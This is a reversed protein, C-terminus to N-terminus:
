PSMALKINKLLRKSLEGPEFAVATVQNDLDPEKFVSSCIGIQEAKDILSKLQIENDVELIVLYNSSEIWSKSLQPFEHQFQIAAHCTQAMRLGPLM